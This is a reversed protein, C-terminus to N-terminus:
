GKKYPRRDKGKKKLQDARKEERRREHEETQRHAKSKTPNRRYQYRDHIIQRMWEVTPKIAEMDNESSSDQGATKKMSCRVVFKRVRRRSDIIDLCEGGISAAIGDLETRVEALSGAIHKNSINDDNADYNKLVFQWPKYDNNNSDKKNDGLVSVDYKHRIAALLQDEKGKYKLMLDDIESLKSPNKARYIAEIARKVVKSQTNNARDNRRASSTMISPTYAISNKILLVTGVVV